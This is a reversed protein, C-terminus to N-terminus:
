DRHGVVIATPSKLIPLIAPKTSRPSLAKEAPQKGSNEASAAVRIPLKASRCLPTHQAQARL